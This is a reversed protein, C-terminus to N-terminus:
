LRPRFGATLRGSAQTDLAASDCALSFYHIKACSKAAVKARLKQHNSPNM